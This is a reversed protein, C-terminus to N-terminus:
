ATLNSTTWPRLVPTPFYGPFGKPTKPPSQWSVSRPLLDGSRKPSDTIEAAKGPYGATSSCYPPIIKKLAYLHAPWLETELLVMVAPNVQQVAQNMAKPSDFPFIDICLSIRPSFKKPPLAQTLIEMGQDTTTTLLINVPRDPNLAKIISVSLYAEGASAAQIWIDAPQLHVPNIRREFTPALRPHRKLFPLAAGWLINYFKFFNPIFACKTM